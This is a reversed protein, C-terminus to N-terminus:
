HSALFLIVLATPLVRGMHGIVVLGRVWARKRQPFHVHGDSPTGMKMLPYGIEQSFPSGLTGLIINHFYPGPDGNEYSMPVAHIKIPM